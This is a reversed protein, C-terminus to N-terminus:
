GFENKPCVSAPTWVRSRHGGVSWVLVYYTMLGGLTWVEATFFDVAALVALHSQIFEKWHMGMGREPTPALGHRKLINGVTQRSIQHGLNELAGTIRKYGWTRNERAIQLVLDEVSELTPPRGLTSRKKTGDFKMAVM